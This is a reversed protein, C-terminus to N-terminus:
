PLLPHPEITQESVQFNTLSETSAHAADIDVACAFAYRACNSTQSRYSESPSPLKLSGSPYM